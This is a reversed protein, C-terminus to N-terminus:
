LMAVVRAMGAYDLRSPRRARAPPLKRLASKLTNFSARDIRTFELGISRPVDGRRRGHVVRSVFAEADVYRDSRPARFSVIVSDGIRVDADSAVLMGTASLDISRSGVLRFDSERVVQCDLHVAHRFAVRERDPPLFDFM